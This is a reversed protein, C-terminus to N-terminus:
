SEEQSEVQAPTWECMRLAENYTINPIDTFWGRPAGMMWEAFAPNLKLVPRLSGRMGVPRRDGRELRRKRMALYTDSTVTPSPAPGVIEEWRAIAQTYPGWAQAVAIGKLLLEDARDGGRRLHGGMSDAVSPTPLLLDRTETSSGGRAARPTPLLAGALTPNGRAYSASTREGDSATPTPLLQGGTAILGEEILIGLDTVTRRGPKKRLHNEATNGSQTATPTPLLRSVASPLMLDGKSGRQNPGGKTGDTARPTPSLSSIARLQPTGRRLDAPAPNQTDSTLPTPLLTVPAAQRAHDGSRGRGLWGPGNPRLGARTLRRLRGPHAAAVFVRKRRHPAGVDSAALSVWEADFGLTALDGLVRGAARLAPVGAPHDGLLRPDSEMASAATTSLAANVNEWIVFTPELVRIAERMEVWLNSRTGERMGAMRGAQSIDQCPSGGGVIEVREVQAWRVTTIDGLNPVNPWRLALVKRPGPEIDSVWVTEVRCGFWAEFAAVIALDLGGWGSFLSGLKLTLM